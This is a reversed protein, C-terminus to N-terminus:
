KSEPAKKNKASGRLALLLMLAGFVVLVIGWYLNVNIDLSRAYLAKDSVVGYISLMIGFIGFMLGIPYRIDLDM